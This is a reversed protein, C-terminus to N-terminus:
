KIQTDPDLHKIKTHYILPGVISAAVGLGIVMLIVPHKEVFIGFACGGAVCAGGYMILDWHRVLGFLGLAVGIALGAKLGLSTWYDSKAESLEKVTPQKPPDFAIPGQIATEKRNLTMQSAKAMVLSMTGLKENFEFRSGEPITMIGDTQKTDVKGPTKADGSINTSGKYDVEITPTKPLAPRFNTCGALLVFFIALHKIM